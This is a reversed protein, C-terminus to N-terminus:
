FYHKVKGELELKLDQVENLMSYQIHQYSSIVENLSKIKISQEKNLSKLENIQEKQQIDIM